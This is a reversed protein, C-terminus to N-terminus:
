SAKDLRHMMAVLEAESQSLGCVNVIDDATAGTQAMRIAQEYPQSASNYFELPESQTAPQPVSSNAQQSQTEVAPHKRQHREIELVREGVGVAANALARLDRQLSQMSLSQLQQQQRQRKLSFLSLILVLAVSVMLWETVSLINIYQTIQEM